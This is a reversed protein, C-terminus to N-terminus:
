EYDELIRKVETLSEATLGKRLLAIDEEPLLYVDVDATLFPTTEGPRFVGIKGQYVAVQYPGDKEPTPTPRIEQSADPKPTYYATDNEAPTGQVPVSAEGRLSFSLLTVLLAAATVITALITPKKYDRPKKDNM